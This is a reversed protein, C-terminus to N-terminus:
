LNFKIDIQKLAERRKLDRKPDPSYMWKIRELKKLTSILALWRSGSKGRPVTPLGVGHVLHTIYHTKTEELRVCMPHNEIDEILEKRTAGPKYPKSM